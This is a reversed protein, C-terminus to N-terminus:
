IVFIGLEVLGVLFKSAHDVYVFLFMFDLGQISLTSQDFSRCLKELYPATRALAYLAIFEEASPKGALRM